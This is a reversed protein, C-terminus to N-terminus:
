RFSARFWSTAAWKLNVTGVTGLFSYTHEVLFQPPIVVIVDRGDHEALSVGPPFQNDVRQIPVGEM